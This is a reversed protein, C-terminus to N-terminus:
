PGYATIASQIDIDQLITFDEEKGTTTATARVCGLRFRSRREIDINKNRTGTEFVLCENLTHIKESRSPNIPLAKNKLSLDKNIFSVNSVEM